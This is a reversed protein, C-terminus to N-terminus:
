DFSAFVRPLERLTNCHQRVSIYQMKDTNKATKALRRFETSMTSTVPELGTAVMRVSDLVEPFVANRPTKQHNRNEGQAESRGLKAGQQARNQARNESKSDSTAADFDSDTVRLYHEQAILRSNGLWSCVVHIPHRASLETQRSIRMNHFLKPWPALKARKLIKLFQTRLNSGLDRYRTIIFETGDDALDFAEQLYPRLEAFIPVVRFEGGSLHETKPSHVAMRGSAFDVDSWRLSLHESPCRLGGYRSLAILLRWQADPAAAIAKDAETLTVFHDRSRNARVASTGLEAFPNERILRHRVAQRFFHKARSMRRRVTNEGLTREGILFLRFNDAQGPTISTLDRSEGFFAVLDSRVQQLTIITAPKADCRSGIYQDLFAGLTARNRNARLPILGAAALKDALTDSIDGIWKSLEPDFATRSEIASVMEEIKAKLTNASKIPMRGLSIKKRQGDLAFLIRRLGDGSTSISAM